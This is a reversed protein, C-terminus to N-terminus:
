LKLRRIVLNFATNYIKGGQTEKAPRLVRSAQKKKLASHNEM